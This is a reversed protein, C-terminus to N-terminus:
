SSHAEVPADADSHARASFASSLREGLSSLSAALHRIRDPAVRFCSAYNARLSYCTRCRESPVDRKSASAFPARPRTPCSGLAASRRFFCGPGCWLLKEFQVLLRASLGHLRRYDECPSGPCESFDMATSTFIPLQEREAAIQLQRAPGAPRVTSSISQMEISQWDVRRRRRQRDSETRPELRCLPRRGCVTSATRALARWRCLPSRYASHMTSSLWRRFAGSEDAIWAMEIITRSCNDIRKSGSRIM